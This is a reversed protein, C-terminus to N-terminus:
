PFIRALLTHWRSPLLFFWPAAMVKVYVAIVNQIVNYILMKSNQKKKKIYKRKTQKNTKRQTVEM